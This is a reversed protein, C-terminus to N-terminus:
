ESGGEEDLAELMEDQLAEVVADDVRHDEGLVRADAMVDWEGYDDISPLRIEGNHEFAPTGFNRKEYEAIERLKREMEETDEITQPEEDDAAYFIGKTDENNETVPNGTEAVAPEQVPIRKGTIKGVYNDLDFFLVIEEGRRRVIAPVRFTYEEDWDLLNYLITCFAKSGFNVSKGKDDAWRIANPHDETCPRVAIMREVPNFLMEVYQQRILKPIGKEGTIRNMRSICTGNFAMGTRSIRVVPELMQSFMSGSVVQFGDRLLPVDDPEEDELPKGEIQAKVALEAKSLVRAIRQVGNDDTLGSIRHGGDPLHESGLDTEMEGEEIGMAISSVRYYEDAEHGAWARNISIFGTLAGRDIVQMPQYGSDHGYRHSNLIRQVANWQARTVIEKHHGPQYYKNKKGNNKKSKHDHFDPTWTKRGLVDGCYRENRAISYVSAATWRYRRRGSIKRQGTERHLENLTDAVEATSCGNLLLYYILKVTKAEEENVQLVKKHGGHGDPIEVKDYGLLAPTLFRGRSFRWELSLLMAESKMHSEEEAVMALVFLIINSTTDLTNLHEQEFFVQIPPDREKLKRVWGICDLLNRAFRSVSKTIIMDIKGAMADRMMLKFAPRHETNTGSFGDDVYTGVYKWKPNAKIMDRYNNKQLEISLLQDIDDTSVRCYAAVRLIRDDQVASATAAIKRVNEGTYTNVEERLAEKAMTRESMFGDGDPPRDQQLGEAKRRAKEEAKPRIDKM